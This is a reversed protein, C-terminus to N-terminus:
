NSLKITSCRAPRRIQCESASRAYVPSIDRLASPPLRAGRGIDTEVLAYLVPCHFVIIKTSNYYVLLYGDLHVILSLVPFTCVYIYLCQVAGNYCLCREVM